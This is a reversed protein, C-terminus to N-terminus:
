HQHPQTTYVKSARSAAPTRGPTIATLPAPVTYIDSPRTRKHHTVAPKLTRRHHGPARRRHLRPRHHQLPRDVRLTDRGRIVKLVAGIQGKPRPGRIDIGPTAATRDRRRRRDIPSAASCSRDSGSRPSWHTPNSRRPTPHLKRRRRRRRIHIPRRRRTRRRRKRRRDPRAARTQM